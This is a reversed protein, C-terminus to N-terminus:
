LNMNYIQTIDELIKEKDLSFEDDNEYLVLEYIDEASLFNTEKKIMDIYGCWINKEKNEGLLVIYIRKEEEGNSTYNITANLIEPTVKIGLWSCKIDKMKQVLLGNNQEYIIYASNIQGKGKLSIKMEPAYYNYKIAEGNEDITLERGFLSSNEPSMIQKDDVIEVQLSNIELPPFLVNNNFLKLLFLIISLPITWVLYKILSNIFEKKVKTSIKEKEESNCTSM